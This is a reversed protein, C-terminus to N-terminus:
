KSQEPCCIPLRRAHEVQTSRCEPPLRPGCAVLLGNFACMRDQVVQLGSCQLELALRPHGPAAEHWGPAGCAGSSSAHWKIAAAGASGAALVPVVACEVM